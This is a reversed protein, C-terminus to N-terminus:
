QKVQWPTVGDEPYPTKGIEPICPDSTIPSSFISLCTETSPPNEDKEGETGINEEEPITTPATPKDKREARRERKGREREAPM